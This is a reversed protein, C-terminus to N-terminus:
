LLALLHLENSEVEPHRKLLVNNYSMDKRSWSLCSNVNKKSILEWQWLGCINHSTVFHKKLPLQMEYEALTLAELFLRNSSSSFFIWSHWNARAKESLSLWSSDKNFASYAERDIDLASNM